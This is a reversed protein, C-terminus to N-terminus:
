RVQIDKETGKMFTPGKRRWFCPQTKTMQLYFPCCSFHTVCVFCHLTMKYKKNNFATHYCNLFKSRLASLMFPTLGFHDKKSVNAGKEILLRAVEPHQKYIAMHLPTMDPAATPSSRRDSFMKEVWEVIAKEPDQETLKTKIIIAHIRSHAIIVLVIRPSQSKYSQM